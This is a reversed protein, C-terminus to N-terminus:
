REEWSSFSCVFKAHGIRGFTCPCLTAQIASYHPSVSTEKHVLLDFIYFMNDQTLKPKSFMRMEFTNQKQFSLLLKCSKM